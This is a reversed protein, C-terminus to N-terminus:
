EAEKQTKLALIKLDSDSMDLLSSIRKKSINGVYIYNVARKIHLDDIFYDRLINVDCQFDDDGVPLRFPIPKRKGRNEHQWQATRHGDCCFRKKMKNQPSSSFSNECKYYECIRIDDTNKNKM